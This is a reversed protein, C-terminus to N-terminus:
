SQRVPESLVAKRKRFWEALVEGAKGPPPPTGAAVEGLAHLNAAHEMMNGPMPFPLDKTPGKCFAALPGLSEIIKKMESLLHDRLSAIPEDTTDDWPIGNDQDDWINQGLFEIGEYAGTSTYVLLCLNQLDSDKEAEKGDFLAMYVETNINEVVELTSPERLVVRLAEIEADGFVSHLTGDQGDIVGATALLKESASRISM